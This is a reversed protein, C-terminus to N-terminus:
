NKKSLLLPSALNTPPQLEPPHEESGAVLETDEEGRRALLWQEFQDIVLLAKQGPRLGRGRRLAALSNVLTHDDPQDPCAKRLGWIPLADHLSLPYLTPTPPPHLSVLA